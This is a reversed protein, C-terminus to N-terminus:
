NGTGYREGAKRAMIDKTPGLLRTFAKEGLAALKLKGGVAKVTAARPARNILALEGFYDGKGYKAVVVDELEGSSSRIAKSFEATGSEIIYFEEGIDGERIM